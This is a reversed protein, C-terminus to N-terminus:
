PDRNLIERGAPSDCDALRQLRANFYTGAKELEWPPYPHFKAEVCQGKQAVAWQRDESSATLMEGSENRIAVAFSYVNKDELTRASGLVATVETVREVSEIVGIVSRRFLVSWFNFMVLGIAILLVLATLALLLSKLRRM